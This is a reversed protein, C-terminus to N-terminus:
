RRASAALLPASHGEELNDDEATVIGYAALALRRYTRTYDAGPPTLGRALKDLVERRPKQSRGTLIAYLVPYNVGTTRSIELVSRGGILQALVVTLADDANM